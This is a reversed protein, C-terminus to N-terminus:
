QKSRELAENIYDRVNLLWAKVEEISWGDLFAQHALETVVKVVEDPVKTVDTM